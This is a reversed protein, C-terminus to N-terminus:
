YLKKFIVKFLRLMSSALGRREGVFLDTSLELYVVESYEEHQGWGKRWVGEQWRKGASYGPRPQIRSICFHHQSACFSCFKRSLVGNKIYQIAIVQYRSFFFLLSLIDLRSLLAIQLAVCWAPGGTFSRGAGPSSFFIATSVAFLAKKIRLEDHQVLM